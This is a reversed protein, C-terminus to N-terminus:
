ARETRSAKSSLVAPCRPCSFFADRRDRLRSPCAPPPGPSPIGPHCPLCRRWGACPASPPNEARHPCDLPCRCPLAGERWGGRGQALMWSAVTESQPCEVRGDRSAGAVAKGQGASAGGLSDARCNSGVRARDRRAHEPARCVRPAAPPVSRGELGWLRVKAQREKTQAGHNQPWATGADTDARGWRKASSAL